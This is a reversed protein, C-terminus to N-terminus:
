TSSSSNGEENLGGSERIITYDHFKIVQWIRLDNCFSQNGARKMAAVELLVLESHPHIIM